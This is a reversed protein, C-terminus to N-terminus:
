LGYWLDVINSTVGHTDRVIYIDNHKYREDYLHRESYEYRVFVMIRM